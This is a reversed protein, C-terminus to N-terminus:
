AEGIYTVQTGRLFIDNNYQGLAGNKSHEYCETAQALAVNMFGDISVLLGTYLLGSNLKVNVTKGIINALFHSAASENDNITTISTTSNKSSM